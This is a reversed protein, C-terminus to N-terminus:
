KGDKIRLLLEIARDLEQRDIQKGFAAKLADLANQGANLHVIVEVTSFKEGCTYCKYRRRTYGDPHRTDVCKRRTHQCDHM